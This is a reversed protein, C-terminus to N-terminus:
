AFVSPVYFLRDKHIMEFKTGFNERLTLAYINNCIGRILFSCLPSQIPYETRGPSNM